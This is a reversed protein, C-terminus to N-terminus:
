GLFCSFKDQRIEEIIKDLHNSKPLAEYLEWKGNGRKWFLSWEQRTKYFRIKAYELNQYENPKNWIPRITYLIFVNNEYSYGFDLKARIEPDEPRLSNVYQKITSENIDITTNKM